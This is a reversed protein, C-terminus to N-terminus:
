CNCIMRSEERDPEPKWVEGWYVRMEVYSEMHMCVCVCVHCVGLLSWNTITFLGPCSETRFKPLLSDSILSVPFTLLSSVVSLLRQGSNHFLFTLM